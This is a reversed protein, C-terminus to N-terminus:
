AGIGFALTLVAVATFAPVRRLTRIAYKVDAVADEIWGFSRADRHLDKTLAVGGLSRRASLRAQGRTMGRRVYEEELLALHSALERAADDDLRERRFVNLLRLIFRRM